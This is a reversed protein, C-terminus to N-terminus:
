TRADAYSKSHISLSLLPWEFTNFDAECIRPHMSFVTCRAIALGPQAVGNVYFNRYNPIERSILVPPQYLDRSPTGHM